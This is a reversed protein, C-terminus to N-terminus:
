TQVDELFSKLFPRGFKDIANWSFVFDSATIPHGDQFRAQPRLNFVIWSKDEPYEASEAILGYAVDLEDASQVFLTDAILGISRPVQGRLIISNLSDFSGPEAMVVAGGKPADPNVYDFHAFGVAYKPTSFEALASTRTVPEQGWAASALFVLAATLVAAVRM